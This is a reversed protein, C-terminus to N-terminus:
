FKGAGEYANELLRRIPGYEVPRPNYYPHETIIQAARDLQDEKMGIQKL